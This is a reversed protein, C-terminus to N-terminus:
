LFKLDDIAQSVETVAANAPDFGADSVGMVVRWFQRDGIHLHLVSVRAGPRNGAVEFETDVVDSFGRQEFVSHAIVNKLEGISGLASSLERSDFRFALGAMQYMRENCAVWQTGKGEVKVPLLLATLVPAGARSTSSRRSRATPTTPPLGVWQGSLRHHDDREKVRGEPGNM